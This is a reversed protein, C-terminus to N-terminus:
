SQITMGSTTAMDIGEDDSPEKPNNWALVNADALWVYLLGPVIGCIASGLFIKQWQELTQQGETMWGIYMTVAFGSLTGAVTGFGLVVIAFNPAIDVMAAFFGANPFGTTIAILIGMALDVYLNHYLSMVLFILGSLITCVGTSLKRVTTFSLRNSKLWSDCLRGWVIATGLRIFQPLGAAAASGKINMDYIHTFYMPFFTINVTIGVIYSWNALTNLWVQLSLLVRSWPIPLRRNSVTHVLASEIHDREEKSIRPHQAPTDFMLFYWFICWVLGILASVYFVNDWSSVAIIWGFVPYMIAVAPASGLYTTIFNSREAPPIWKATIAHLFSFCCCGFVGHLSRLVMMAAFSHRAVVPVLLTAIVAVFNAMGFMLKAGYKMALVGGPLSLLFSFNTAGLILGQEFETWHISPDNVMGIIAVNINTMMM